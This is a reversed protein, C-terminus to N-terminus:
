KIEQLKAKLESVIIFWDDKRPTYNEVVASYKMQGCEDIIKLFEAQAEKREQKRGDLVGQEYLLSRPNNKEPLTM